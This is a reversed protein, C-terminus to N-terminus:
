WIRVRKQPAIYLRDAPKVDFAEYWADINRVGGNVRYPWYPHENSVTYQRIFDETAKGRYYQAWSRFFRQDGTLGDIVPAPAGHLSAHYAELAISLGGLDAITEGLTLEPDIHLGPLPEYAAYQAGLM